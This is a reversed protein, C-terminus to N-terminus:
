RNITACVNVQAMLLLLLLHERDLEIAGTGAAGVTVALDDLRGFTEGDQIGGTAARPTKQGTYGHGPRLVFLSSPLGRGATRNCSGIVRRPRKSNAALHTIQPM